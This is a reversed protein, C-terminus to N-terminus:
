KPSRRSVKRLRWTSLTYILAIEAHGADWEFEERVDVGYAQNTSLLEFAKRPDIELM